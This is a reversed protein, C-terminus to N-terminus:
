HDRQLDSSGSVDSRDESSMEFEEELMAGNIDELDQHSSERLGSRSGGSHQDPDKDDDSAEASSLTEKGEFNLRFLGVLSRAHNFAIGVFRKENLPDFFIRVLQHAEEEFSEVQPRKRWEAKIFSFANEIANARFLGPSNMFLFKGARAVKVVGATHCSANDALVTVKSRPPLSVLLSQLFFLFEEANIDQKFIQIAIFGKITCAAIVTLKAKEPWPRRNYVMDDEAQDYSRWNHTSTQVLMFHVEDVYINIIDTESHAQALHKVVAKARTTRNVDPGPNRKKKVMKLFRYGSERLRKAIWKRSFSGHQRKIDSITTFTGRVEQISRDLEQVSERTKRNNYHFPIVQGFKLLDRQVERALKRGCGSMRCVDAITPSQLHTWYHAALERRKNVKDFWSEKAKTTRPEREPHRLLQLQQEKAILKKKIQKPDVRKKTKFPKCPLRKLVQYERNAFTVTEGPQLMGFLVVSCERTTKTTNM